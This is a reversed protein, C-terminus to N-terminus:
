CSTSISYGASEAEQATKFYVRNEVKISKGASCGLSYYKKGKKSAFFAKDTTNIDATQDRQEGSGPTENLDISSVVNASQGMYEIKLGEPNASKSLRGLSFSGLGVLIVIIVIMIDKSAEGELLGKIKQM